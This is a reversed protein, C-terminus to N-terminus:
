SYMLICYTQMCVVIGCGVFEQLKNIQVNKRRGRRACTSCIWGCYQISIQDLTFLYNDSAIFIRRGKLDGTCYQVWGGVCVDQVNWDKLGVVQGCDNGKM